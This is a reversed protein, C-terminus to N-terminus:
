VLVIDYTLQIEIFNPPFPFALYRGVGLYIGLATGPM